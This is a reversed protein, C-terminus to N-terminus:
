NASPTELKLILNQDTIKRLSILYNIGAKKMEPTASFYDTPYLAEPGLKPIADLQHYQNLLKGFSLNKLLHMPRTEFSFLRIQYWDDKIKVFDGTFPAILLSPSYNKIRKDAKILDGLTYDSAHALYGFVM